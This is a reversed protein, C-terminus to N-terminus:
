GYNPTLIKYVHTDGNNKYNYNGSRIPAICLNCHAMAMSLFWHIEFPFLIDYLLNYLTQSTSTNFKLMRMRSCSEGISLLSSRQIIMHEELSGPVNNMSSFMTWQPFGNSEEAIWCDWIFFGVYWRGHDIFITHRVSFLTCMRM